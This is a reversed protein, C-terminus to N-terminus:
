KNYKIAIGQVVGWLAEQLGGLQEEEKRTYQKKEKRVKTTKSGLKM